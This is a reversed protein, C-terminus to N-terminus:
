LRIVEAAKLEPAEPFGKAPYGFVLPGYVNEGDKLQLAMRVGKDDLVVQGAYVWCSGIGMARAALMMNQCVMPTDFNCTNGWGIVFIIAPAGYYVSDENSTDIPARMAKFSEPMTSLWKQYKPKAISALKKRFEDSKIVVFRWMRNAAGSPAANGCSIIEKLESNSIKKGSFSRVSRRNYITEIVQNMKNTSMQFSKKKTSTIKRTKKEESVVRM